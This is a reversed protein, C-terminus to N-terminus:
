QRKRHKQRSRTCTFRLRSGDWEFWMPNVQPQGDPRVTGLHAFLARALLDAHGAPVPPSERTEAVESGRAQLVSSGYQAPEGDLL